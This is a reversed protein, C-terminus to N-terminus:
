LHWCIIKKRGLKETDIFYAKEQIRLKDLFQFYYYDKDVYKDYKEHTKSNYGQTKEQEVIHTARLFNFGENNRSEQIFYNTKLNSGIIDLTTNKRIKMKKPQNIYTNLLSMDWLWLVPINNKNYDQTRNIFEEITIPSCQIEIVYKKSETEIYIDAIRNDIAKYELYVKKMIDTQKVLWSYLNIKYKQHTESEGKLYHYYMCDTDSSHAFHPIKIAGNKFILKSGCEPCFYNGWYILERSANVIQGNLKAVLM